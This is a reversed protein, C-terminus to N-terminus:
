QREHYPVCDTGSTMWSEHLRDATEDATVWEAHGDAFGWNWGEQRHNNYPDPCNNMDDSYQPLNDDADLVIVVKTPAFQVTQPSKRVNRRDGREFYGFFEYSHGGSDDERDGNSTRRLDLLVGNRDVLDERVVNRTSPCTFVEVESIYDPYLSIPAEDSGISETDYFYRPNDQSYLHAAFMTQRLNNVCSTRNAQKKANSLAPLLMSALIAIIAIVVLLEILTFGPKQSDPHIRTIM